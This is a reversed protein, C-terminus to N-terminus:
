LKFCFIYDFIDTVRCVHLRSLFSDLQRFATWTLQMLKNSQLCNCLLGTYSGFDGV